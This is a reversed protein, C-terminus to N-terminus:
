PSEEGKIESVIVTFNGEKGALEADSYDDSLTLVFETPTGAKTGEIHNALGPFPRESDQDVVYVAGKDDMVTRSETTAQVDM